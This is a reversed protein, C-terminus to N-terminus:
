IEHMPISHAPHLSFAACYAIFFALVGSFMVVSDSKISKELFAVLFDSKDAARGNAVGLGCRLGFVSKHSVSSFVQLWM